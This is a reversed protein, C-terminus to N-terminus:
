QCPTTDFISPVYSFTAHRQCPSLGRLIKIRRARLVNEKGKEPCKDVEGYDRWM